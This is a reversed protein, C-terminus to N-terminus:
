YASGCAVTHQQCISGRWAVVEEAVVRSTIKGNFWLIVGGKIRLPFVFVIEVRESLSGISLLSVPIRNGNVLVPKVVKTTM